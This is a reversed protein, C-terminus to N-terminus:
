RELTEELPKILCGLHGRGSWKQPKLTLTVLGKSNRLVQVRVNQNLSHEVVEGVSKLNGTFNQSDVSGFAVVLDGAKLGATEAPSGGAVSDIRAFPEPFSEVSMPMADEPVDAPSAAGIGERSQAHLNHLGKEIAAMVAKLDNRICIIRNRAERVKHVDIDNRPYGEGDILADEMGVKQGELVGAWEKMEEEMKDKEKMLSLVEEKTANKDEGSMKDSDSISHNV